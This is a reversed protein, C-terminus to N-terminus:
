QIEYSLSVTVIIESSGTEISTDEKVVGGAQLPMSRIDSGGGFSESYNIIRGLSFGAIKAANEAKQKAESVAKERARNQAEVKNAVDFRISGVQNAGSSTATDIVINLKGLDRVIINLNTSAIYGTIQQNSRQYDYTPYISYNATQLDKNEIGLKRINESVQNIAVNIKEQAQQATLGQAEVGVNVEALDPRIAEKGEGSVSFVDTKTTTVSNVFLPIPGAFRSYLHLFLFFVAFILIIKFIERLM